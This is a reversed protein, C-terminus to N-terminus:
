NTFVVIYIVILDLHTVRSNNRELKVTIGQVESNIRTGREKVVNFHPSNSSASRLRKYVRSRSVVSHEATIGDIIYTTEKRRV